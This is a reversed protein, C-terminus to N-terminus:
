KKKIIKYMLRKLLNKIPIKMDYKFNPFSYHLIRNSLCAGCPSPLGLMYWAGEVLGVIMSGIVITKVDEPDEEPFLKLISKAFDDEIPMQEDNSAIVFRSKQSLVLSWLLIFILNM